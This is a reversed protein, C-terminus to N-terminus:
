GGCAGSVAQGNGTTWGFSPDYTVDSFEEECITPKNEFSDCILNAYAKASRGSPVKIGNLVFTPSWSVGYEKNEKDHLTFLPNDLGKLMNEDYNIAKKTEAKCSALKKMDVKTEALCEDAKGERLFCKLYEKYQAKNEKQICYQAINEEWEKAGHMLYNVFKVEMDAVKDLKLMAELFWKQAQLGYPCYSMVYLEAKPKAVKKACKIDKSCKVDECDIKWDENDDIKNDCVEYFPDYKSDVIFSYRGDKLKVFDVKLNQRDMSNDFDKTSFIIAPLTKIDNEKLYKKVGEDSFDKKTFKVEKLSPLQSLAQQLQELSMQEMRKDWILEVELNTNKVEEKDESTNNNKTINIGCESKIDSNGFFKDYNKGLFFSLASLILLLLLIVVIIMFISKNSKKQKKEFM